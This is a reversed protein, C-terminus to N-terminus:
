GAWSGTEARASSMAAAMRSFWTTITAPAVPDPFVVWIGFIQRSSPRPIVPVMPCVWGRRIAARM